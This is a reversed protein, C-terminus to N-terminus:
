DVNWVLPGADVGTRESCWLPARRPEKKKRPV